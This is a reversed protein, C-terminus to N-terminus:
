KLNIMPTASGLMTEPLKGDWKEAQRLKIIDPNASIASAERTIAAARAKSEADTEYAIADANLKTQAAAAEAKIKVQTSDAEAVTVRTHNETAIRLQDQDAKVKAEISDNFEKSFEFNTVAVNAIKIAGVANKELLTKKVFEDLSTEIGNKVDVRKTILEEATYKASISKVVEQIAPNLIATEMELETGFGQLVRSASTGLVSWQVSIKTHVVQLDKSSAAADAETTGVKTNVEHVSAFPWPRTMHFGETLIEPQVAGFYTVVGVTGTPVSTGSLLLLIVAIVAVFVFGITKMPVSEEDM